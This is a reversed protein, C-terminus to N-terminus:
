EVNLIRDIHQKATSLAREQTACAGDFKLTNTHETHYLWKKQTPDYQVTIVHNRYKETIVKPKVVFSVVASM